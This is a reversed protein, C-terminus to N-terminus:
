VCSYESQLRKFVNSTPKNIKNLIVKSDNFNKFSNEKTKM